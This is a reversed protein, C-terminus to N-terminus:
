ESIRAGASSWGIELLRLYDSLRPYVDEKVVIEYIGNPLPTFKFWASSQALFAVSHMANLLGQFRVSKVLFGAPKDTAALQMYEVDGPFEKCGDPNDANDLSMARFLARLAALTNYSRGGGQLTCFQVSAGCWAGVDDDKARDDKEQVSVIMDGDAEVTLRLYSEVSMDERRDVMLPFM